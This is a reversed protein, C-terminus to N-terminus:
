ELSANYFDLQVSSCPIRDIIFTDDIIADYGNFDVHYDIKSTEGNRLLNYILPFFYRPVNKIEEHDKFVKTYFQMQRKSKEAFFNYEQLDFVSVNVRCHTKKFIFRRLEETDIEFDTRVAFIIEDCSVCDLNKFGYEKTVVDYIESILKKELTIHRSPNLQGFVVQRFYKSYKIYDIDTFKNIYGEYTHCGDFITPSYLFVAQFNAKQLDISLFRKGNSEACNISRHVPNMVIDSKFRSMDELNFQRYKYNSKITEIIKDRTSLYYDVFADANSDFRTDILTELGEWKTMSQYEGEFLRLYYKFFSLNNLIPIPLDYDKIFRNVLPRNTLYEEKM